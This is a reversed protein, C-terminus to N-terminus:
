RGAERQCSGEGGGPCLVGGHILGQHQQNVTGAIEIAGIVRHWVQAARVALGRAGDMAHNGHELAQAIVRTGFVGGTDKVGGAGGEAVLPIGLVLGLPGGHRIRQAFLNLGDVLDDAEEAPRHEGDGADLGVIADAGQGAHRGLGTVLHQDGGAVLVQGLEDRGVDLEDVGHAVFAQIFGTDQGLKADRRVADDVIQSEHAVGDVVDGAHLFDAGFRGGLPNGLMTREVADDGRGVLDLAHSTLVQALGQVPKGHAALEDGDLDVAVEALMDGAPRGQFGQGELRHVFGAQEIKVVAVAELGPLALELPAQAAALGAVARGDRGVQGAALGVEEGIRGHSGGRGLLM